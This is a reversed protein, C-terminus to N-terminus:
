RQIVNVRLPPGPHLELAAVDSLADKAFFATTRARLELKDDESLHRASVIIVPIDATLPSEKLESLVRMGDIRPLNLDLIIVDPGERLATDLGVQGDHAELVEYDGGAKLLQRLLYRDIESDEIILVRLTQTPVPAPSAITRVGPEAADYRRPLVLSFVSGSGLKSTVEISGGLLEALKRCLPLGLGTGRARRQLPSDIQSYEEFIRGLHEPAIGIGTDRVSIRVRDDELQAWVRVEGHETFKLANSIFNRLIQSVKAEDSHISPVASTDDFMLVVDDTALLPRFIGRLAGFVFELGFESPEITVKGAEVKALDLLDNVMERMEEAAQRIFSLQKGEEPDRRTKSSQLLRVLGIIGNLPTRLEHSAYSLFRSKLDDARRLKEARDDLEAYLALVGRNTEELESQLGRILTHSARAQEADRLLTTSFKAGECAVEELTPLTRRDSGPPLEFTHVSTTGNGSQTRVALVSPDEREISFQVGDVSSTALHLAAAVLGLRNEPQLGLADALAASYNAVRLVDAESSVTIRVTNGAAM